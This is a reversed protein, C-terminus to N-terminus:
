EHEAEQRCAGWAKRLLAVGWGWPAWATENCPNNRGLHLAKCQDKDFKTLEKYGM